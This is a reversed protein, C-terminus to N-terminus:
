KKNKQVKKFADYLRGIEDSDLVKEMNYKNVWDERTMSWLEGDHLSLYFITVPFDPDTSTVNSIGKIQYYIDNDGMWFSGVLNNIM